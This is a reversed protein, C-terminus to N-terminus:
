PGQSNSVGSPAKPNPDGRLGVTAHLDQLGRTQLAAGCAGRIEGVFCGDRALAGFPWLFMLIRCVMIEPIGRNARPVLM